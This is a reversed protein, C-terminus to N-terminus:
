QVRREDLEDLIDVIPEFIEDTEFDYGMNAYADIMFMCTAEMFKEELTPEKIM